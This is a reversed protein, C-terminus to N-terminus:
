WSGCPGRLDPWGEFVRVENQRGHTNMRSQASRKRGGPRTEANASLMKEAQFSEGADRM